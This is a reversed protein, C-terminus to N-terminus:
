GQSLFVFLEALQLPQDQRILEEYFSDGGFLDGLVGVGNIVLKSRLLYFVQAKSTVAYNLCLPSGRPPPAEM